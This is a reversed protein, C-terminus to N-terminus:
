DWLKTMRICHLVVSICGHQRSLSTNIHGPIKRLHHTVAQGALDIVWLHFDVDGLWVHSDALLDHLQLDHGVPQPVGEVAVVHVELIGTLSPHPLLASPPLFPQSQQLCHTLSYPTNPKPIPPYHIYLNSNPTYCFPRSCSPSM